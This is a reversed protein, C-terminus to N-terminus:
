MFVYLFTFIVFHFFVSASGNLATRLYDYISEDFLARFLQGWGREPNEKDLKKNACTSDGILFLHTPRQEAALAGVFCCLALTLLLKKM